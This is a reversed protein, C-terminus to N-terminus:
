TTWLIQDLYRHGQATSYSAIQQSSGENGPPPYMERSRAVRLTDPHPGGTLLEHLVRGDMHDPPAIELLHLVTPTVDVIGCPVDSVLGSEIGEGWAILTNNIAYPSASGHTAAMGAPCSVSGPVGNEHIAHSWRFAFM